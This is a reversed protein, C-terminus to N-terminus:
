DWHITFVQIARYIAFNVALVQLKETIKLVHAREPVARQHRGRKRWVYERICSMWESYTAFANTYRNLIWEIREGNRIIRRGSSKVRSMRLGLDTGRRRTGSECGAHM